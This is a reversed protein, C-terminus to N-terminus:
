PVQLRGNDFLFIPFNSESVCAPPRSPPPLRHPTPRRSDSPSPFPDSKQCPVCSKPGKKPQILFTHADLLPSGWISRGFRRRCTGGHLGAQGHLETLSHVVASKVCTYARCRPLVRRTHLRRCWNWPRRTRAAIVAIPVGLGLCSARHMCNDSRWTTVNTM